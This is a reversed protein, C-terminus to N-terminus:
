VKPVPLDHSKFHNALYIFSENEEPCTGIVGIISKPGTLRFYRRNSGSAPMEIINEPECGIAQAYLKSLITCDM